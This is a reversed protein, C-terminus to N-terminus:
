GSTCSGAECTMLSSETKYRGLKHQFPEAKQYDRGRSIGAMFDTNLIRKSSDGLERNRGGNKIRYNMEAHM